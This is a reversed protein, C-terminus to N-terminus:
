SEKKGLLSFGTVNENINAYASHLICIKLTYGLLKVHRHVMFCWLIIDRIHRKSEEGILTGM